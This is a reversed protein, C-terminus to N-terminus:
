CMVTGARGIRGPRRTAALIDPVAEPGIRLIGFLPPPPPSYGAAGTGSCEELSYRPRYPSNWVCGIGDPLGSAGPAGPPDREQRAAAAAPAIRASEAPTQSPPSDAAAEGCRRAAGRERHRGARRRGARRPAPQLLAAPDDARTRAYRGDRSPPRLPRSAPRSSVRIEWPDRFGRGGRSGGGPIRPSAPGSNSGGSTKGGLKIAFRAEHCTRAM